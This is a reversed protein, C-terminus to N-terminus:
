PQETPLDLQIEHSIVTEDLPQFHQTGGGPVAVRPAPAGPAFLVKLACSGDRYLVTGGRLNNAYPSYSSTTGQLTAVKQELATRTAGKTVQVDNLRCQAQAYSLSIVFLAALTCTVKTLRLSMKMPRVPFHDPASLCESRSGPQAERRLVRSPAYASCSARVSTSQSANPRASAMAPSSSSASVAPAMSMSGIPWGFFTVTAKLAKRKGDYVGDSFNKVVIEGKRQLTVRWAFTRSPEHDIRIINRPPKM